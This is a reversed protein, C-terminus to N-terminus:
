LVARLRGLSLIHRDSSISRAGPAAQFQSSSGCIAMQGEYEKWKKLSSIPASIYPEVGSKTLFDELRPLIADLAANSMEEQRKRSLGLNEVYWASDLSICSSAYADVLMPDVNASIAAEYAIRHGISQVLM